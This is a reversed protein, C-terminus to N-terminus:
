WRCSPSSSSVPRWRPLKLRVWYATPVVLLVGMVITLLAMLASFGFTERFRPDALVARYADLSYVGRRMRLSFEITGILPVLFYALGIGLALWSWFRSVKM